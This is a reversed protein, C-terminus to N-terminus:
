KGRVVFAHMSLPVQPTDVYNTIRVRLPDVVAFVRPARPHLRVDVPAFVVLLRRQRDCTDYSCAVCRKDLDARVCRELLYCPTTSQNRTVGVQAHACVCTQMPLGHQLVLFVM